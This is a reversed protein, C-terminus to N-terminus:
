LALVPDVINDVDTVPIYQSTSSVIDAEESEEIATISKKVIIVMGDKETWLMVKGPTTM